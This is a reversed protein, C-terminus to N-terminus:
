VVVISDKRKLNFVSKRYALFYFLVNWTLWSAAILMTTNWSHTHDKIAGLLVPSLADGLVHTFMVCAAMAMPRHKRVNM